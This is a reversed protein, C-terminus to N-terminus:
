RLLIVRQYFDMGIQNHILADMTKNLNCFLTFNSLIYLFLSFHIFLWFPIYVSSARRTLKHFLLAPTLSIVSVFM